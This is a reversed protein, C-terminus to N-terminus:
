ETEKDEINNISDKFILYEEYTRWEVWTIVLQMFVFAIGCLLRQYKPWSGPQIEWEAFASIGYIIILVIISLVIHSWLRSLKNRNM